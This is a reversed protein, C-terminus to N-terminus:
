DQKDTSMPPPPPNGATNHVNSPNHAETQKVICFLNLLAPASSASQPETMAGQHVLLAMQQGLGFREGEKEKSRVREAEPKSTESLKQIAGRKLRAREERRRVQQERRGGRETVARYYSETM